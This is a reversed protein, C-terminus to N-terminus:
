NGEQEGEGSQLSTEAMLMEDAYLPLANYLTNSCPFCQLEKQFSSNFPVFCKSVLIVANM